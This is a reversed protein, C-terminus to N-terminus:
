AIRARLYSDRVYMRIDVLTTPRLNGHQSSQPEPTLNILNVQAALVRVPGRVDENKGTHYM